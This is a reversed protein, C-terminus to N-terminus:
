NIPQPISKVLGKPMKIKKVTNALKIRNETLPEVTQKAVIFKMFADATMVGSSETQEAETFATLGNGGGALFENTTVTYLQDNDLLRGNYRVVVEPQSFDVELGRSVQLFGGFGGPQSMEAAVQSFVRRLAEGSITLRVLYNDFPLVNLCDGVTITGTAISSRIGGGNILAMDAPFMEAFCDAVLNGLNTEMNRVCAREGNLFVETRGLPVSVKVQIQEWLKRAKDAIEPDEPLISEMPILGAAAVEVKQRSHRYFSIDYRTVHQGWEGPQSIFRHGREGTVVAPPNIALHTHGGLFGDIEPFTEFLELDKEWGLHSLVLIMDPKERHIEPLIRRLTSVAGRVAFDKVFVPQVIQKLEEPVLGILAIKIKKENKGVKIFTYPRIRNQLQPIKRYEINAALVPFKAYSLAEALAEQGNDFEHNGLAMASYGTQNMFEIDPIGQFFRYFLTGQFLDGSSLLVVERGQKELNDKYKKIRAYVGVSNGTPGDFAMLHAHIDSTHLITFDIVEFPDATFGSSSSVQFLLVVVLLSKFLLKIM